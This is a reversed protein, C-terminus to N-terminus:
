DEVGDNPDDSDQCTSSFSEEDREDVILKLMKGLCLKNAHLAEKQYQENQHPGLQTLVIKPYLYKTVKM